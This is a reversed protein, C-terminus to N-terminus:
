ESQGSSVGGGPGRGFAGPEGLGGPLQGGFRGFGGGSGPSAFIIVQSAAVTGASTTGFAIVLEGATVNALSAPSVSRDVYATSSSVDITVTTNSRTTLTFSNTGVSQVTGAAAPRAGSSPGAFGGGPAPVSGGAPGAVGITVRTATVTGGSTSGLVTVHVGVVVDAFGATSTGSERYTTSATVDVTVTAGSGTTVAFSKTGVSKVTGTVAPADNPGRYRAPGISVRTATVTGSSNSGVVVVQQGVKLSAFSPSATGPESYTTSSTVDVTVTSGSPTTVVFSNTGVSKVTGTAAPASSGPSFPHARPPASGSPASEAAGAVGGAALVLSGVVGATALGLRRRGGLRGEYGRTRTRM